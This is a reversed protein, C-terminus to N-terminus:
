EKGEQHQLVDSGYGLIGSAALKDTEIGSESKIGSVTSTSVGIATAIQAVTYGNRLMATIKSKRARSISANEKPTALKKLEADDMHQVLQSLMNSSIANNMIADWEDETIDIPKRKLNLAARAGAISQSRLKKLDDKSINDKGGQREVETDFRKKALIQAQREKPKKLMAQDLKDKLSLVQPSYIMAAKPDKKPIKIGKVMSDVRTKRAKLNNVFSVYDKEVQSSNPNLYVSADDVMTIIHSQKRNRVVVKTDGTLEGTRKNIKPVEVVQGGTTVEQSSRSIINSAGKGVYNGNFKKLEDPDIAKLNKYQGNRYETKSLKSYDIRDVHTQYKKKLADIGNDRESRKYNLKHKESDIVVMSHRVARAIEDMPAKQLTMDNILNSVIGMQKQKNDATIVTFTSPDDKYQSPEFNKLGELAPSSKYKKSNNPIVYAVDGDFDAGSLKDAVKPHIGIADPADKGILSKGPGKNNVRLEPIEFTGGHPYRILIVNEGDKYNPAFVENEKMNPVPLLLHGQFRSPAVAKLHVQKSELGESYSQLLQKRITPNTVKLIEDLEEDTKKLTAELREKVVPRPQKSLFQASLKKDWSLWDGEENVINMAGIKYKPNGNKDFLPKGNKDTEQVFNGKDDVLKNQRKITAGFPNSGDIDDKLEKLVKERPTDKSKNTNFIVDVGKPFDTEKGYLAVGKLYHSDDVAIRVQAYHKGEGINLDKAGPRILMSGDMTRGDAETGHGKQGEPIAYKIQVQDWKLSKPTEINQLNTTDGHVAYETIPRIKDYNDYIDKVTKDDKTLVKVTTKNKPNSAQSIQITQVSYGEEKLKSITGDLKEKSVGLQTHVGLGVDLYGTKDVGKKLADSLESIQKQKAVQNPAQQAYNTVSGPSIGVKAAIDIAKEGRALRTQVEEYIQQKHAASALHIKNRYETTTIGLHRAIDTNSPNTIGRKRLEAKAEDSITLFSKNRQPNDGSGYPYRGSHRPTGYHLLGDETIEDFESM